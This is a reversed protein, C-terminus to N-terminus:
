AAAGPRSFNTYHYQIRGDRLGLTDKGSQVASGSKEWRWEFAWSNDKGRADVVTFRGGALLEGLLQQYWQRIAPAGFIMRKASVHGANAQYLAVLADLNASNAAALWQQLLVSPLAPQPAPQPAPQAVPQPQIVPAVPQAVPQPQPVPLPQAIPRADAQWDFRAVANWLHQNGASTAWDWSYSNAALMGLERAKMYFVAQDEATAVWGGAGYTAGTPVVPRQYGVLSMNAFERASRELQRDPNHAQEWYVQPMNLDCKELFAAWPLERHYSPYRYSSLAILMNPLGARLDTMYARAAAAKGATKYEGEADIVYGDLNLARSREVAVKAEGTPDDGKVYHWGWAQVGRNHLAAVVPQVLDRNQRDFGFPYRTDAIKLLVHSLGAAVAKAAIAEPNGGECNAVRWIFFGKGTLAM